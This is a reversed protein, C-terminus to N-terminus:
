KIARFFASRPLKRGILPFAHSISVCRIFALIIFIVQTPLIPFTWFQRTAFREFKFWDLHLVSSHGFLHLPLIQSVTHVFFTLHHSTLLKLCYVVVDYHLQGAVGDVGDLRHLLLFFYSYKAFIRNALDHRRNECKLIPLLRKNILAFREKFFM